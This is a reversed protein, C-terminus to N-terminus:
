IPGNQGIKNLLSLFTELNQHLFRALFKSLFQFEWFDLGKMIELINAWNQFFYKVIKHLNQFFNDCLFAIFLTLPTLFPPFKPLFHPRNEASKQLGLNGIKGIKKRGWASKQNLPTPLVPLKLKKLLSWWFKTVETGENAIEFSQLKCSGFFSWFHYLYQIYVARSFSWNSQTELM